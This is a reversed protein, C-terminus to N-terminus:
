SFIVLMVQIGFLSEGSWVQGRHNFKIRSHIEDKFAKGWISEGGRGSNTPDGTQLMFDPSVFAFWYM